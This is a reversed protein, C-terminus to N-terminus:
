NESRVLIETYQYYIIVSFSSTKEMECESVEWMHETVLASQNM